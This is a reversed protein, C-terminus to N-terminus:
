EEDPTKEIIIIKNLLFEGTETELIESIADAVNYINEYPADLRIGSFTRKKFVKEGKSDVGNEIEITLSLSKLNDIIM